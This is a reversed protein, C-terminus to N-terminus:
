RRGPAKVDDLFLLMYDTKLLAVQYRNNAFGSKEMGEKLGKLSRCGVNGEKRGKTTKV